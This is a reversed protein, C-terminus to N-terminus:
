RGHDIVYQYMMIARIADNVAKKVIARRSLQILLLYCIAKKYLEQKSETRPSQAIHQGWAVSFGFDQLPSKKHFRGMWGLNLEFEIEFEFKGGRGLSYM